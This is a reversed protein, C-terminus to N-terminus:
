AEQRLHLQHSYQGTSPDKKFIQRLIDDVSRLSTVSQTGETLVYLFKPILHRILLDTKQHPKLLCNLCRNAVSILKNGANYQLKQSWRNDGDKRVFTM